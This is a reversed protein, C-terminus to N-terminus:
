PKAGATASVTPPTEIALGQKDLANKTLGANVVREARDASVLSMRLKVIHEALKTQLIDPADAPFWDVKSKAALTPALAALRAQADQPTITTGSAAHLGVLLMCNDGATADVVAFRPKWAGASVSKEDAVLLVVERDEEAKTLVQAIDDGVKIARWPLNERAAVTEVVSRVTAGPAIEWRAGNDHLTAIGVNYAGPNDFVGPLEEFVVPKPFSPLATGTAAARIVATLADLTEDYRARYKTVKSRKLALLGQQRYDSPFGSSADSDQYRSVARPVASVDWVVPIVVRLKDAAAGAANLRRRFVEFENACYESNFYTNSCFCVLVRAHRAAEGLVDQWKQATLIGDVQDFFGVEAANLAGLKSRVRERLDLIVTNLRKKDNDLRAYSAFFIHAM